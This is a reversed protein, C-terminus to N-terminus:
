HKNLVYNNALDGTIKKGNLDLQILRNEEVKYMFPGNEIGGLIVMAGDDSWTINGTQELYADDKGVYKTKLVYVDSELKLQTEIGECDACPLIGSYTGAWDLSSHSTHTDMDMTNMEHMDMNVADQNTETKKKNDCSWLFALALTILLVKKM